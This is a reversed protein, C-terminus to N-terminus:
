TWVSHAPSSCCLSVVELSTCPVEFDGCVTESEVDKQRFSLAQPELYHFLATFAEYTPVGTYFKTKQNSNEM